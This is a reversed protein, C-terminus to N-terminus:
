ENGVRLQEQYKSVREIFKKQYWLFENDKIIFEQFELKPTCVLIVGQKINTEHQLNHALAYACTQLFYDTIWERKKTKTSSKFDIISEKNDYVGCLDTTGAHSEPYYLPTECGWIEDLKKELAQNIIVESMKKENDNLIEFDLSQKGHLADELYKHMKDGRLTSERSIRTAESYGVRDKWANLSDKEKQSKTKELITTVSPVKKGDLSYHRAGSKDTARQLSTYTFRKNWLHLL